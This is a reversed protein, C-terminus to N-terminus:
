TSVLHMVNIIKLLMSYCQALVADWIWFMEIIYIWDIITSLRLIMKELDSGTLKLWVAGNNTLLKKFYLNMVIKIHFFNKLFKFM